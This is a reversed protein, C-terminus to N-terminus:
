RGTSFRIEGRWRLNTVRQGSNCGVGNQVAHHSFVVLRAQRFGIEAGVDAM